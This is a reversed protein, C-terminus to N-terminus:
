FLLIELIVANQVVVELAVVPVVVVCMWYELCWVVVSAVSGSSGFECVTRPSGVVGAVDRSNCNM